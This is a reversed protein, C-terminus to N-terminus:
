LEEELSVRVTIILLCIQITWGLWNYQEFEFAKGLTACGEIIILVLFFFELKSLYNILKKM